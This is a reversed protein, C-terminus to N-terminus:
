PRHDSPTGKPDRRRDTPLTYYNVRIARDIRTWLDTYMNSPM